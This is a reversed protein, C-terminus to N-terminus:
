VSFLARLRNAFLTLFEQASTQNLQLRDYNITLTLQNAYTLADVVAVVGPRVPPFPELRELTWTDAQLKGAANALESNAFVRGLNSLGSTIRPGGRSVLRLMGNRVWGAAALSQILAWGTQWRKVNSMERVIGPLLQDSQIQQLNRDLFVMSVGNVAPDLAPTGAPRLNIPVAVRLSKAQLAQQRQSNWALLVRFYEALLFDNLSGQRQRAAAQIAGTEAPSFTTACFQNNSWSQQDFAVAVEDSALSVTPTRFYNFIRALDHPARKLHQYWRTNLRSRSQWWNQDRALEAELPAGADSDDRYARVLTELFHLIGAGDCCAHHWQIILCPSSAQQLVVIRVGSEQLLNLHRPFAYDDGGQPWLIQPDTSKHHWYIRRTPQNLDGQIRASLLPHARLAARMATEFRQRHIVGSYHVRISVTMPHDPTDDALMYHEFPTVALPFLNGAWSGAATAPSRATLLYQASERNTPTM